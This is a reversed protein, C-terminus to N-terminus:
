LQANYTGESNWVIRTVLQATQYSVEVESHSLQLLWVLFSQGDDWWPPSLVAQELFTEFTRIVLPVASSM